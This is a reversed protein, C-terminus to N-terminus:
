RGKIGSAVDLGIIDLAYLAISNRYIYRIDLDCFWCYGLKECNESRHSRRLRKEAVIYPEM